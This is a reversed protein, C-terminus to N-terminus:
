GSIDDEDDDDELEAISDGEYYNHSTDGGFMAGLLTSCLISGGYALTFAIWAAFEFQFVSCTVGIGGFATTFLGVAALYQHQVNIPEKM